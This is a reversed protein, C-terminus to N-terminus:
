GNADREIFELALGPVVESSLLKEFLKPSVKVKCDRSGGGLIIYECQMVRDDVWIPLDEPIALPTVGGIEMGTLTKTEEASAFSVRRSEIKKRVTKNVDLRTHALVVCVVYREGGSKAKILITNASVEPAYGYHECFMATDALEPDCPFMEYEVGTAELAAKVRSSSENFVLRENM